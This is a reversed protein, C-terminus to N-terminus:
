GFEGAWEYWPVEFTALPFELPAGGEALLYGSVIVACKTGSVGADIREGAYAVVHCAQSYDSPGVPLAHWVVQLGAVTVAVNRSVTDWNAAVTSKIVARYGAPVIM